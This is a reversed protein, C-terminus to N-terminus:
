NMKRRLHEEIFAAYEAEDRKHEAQRRAQDQEWTAVREAITGEFTARLGPSLSQLLEEQERGIAARDVEISVPYFAWTRAPSGPSYGYNPVSRAYEDLTNGLTATDMPAWEAVTNFGAGEVALRSDPQEACGALAGAVILLGGVAGYIKGLRRPTM